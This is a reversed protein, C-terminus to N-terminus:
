TRSQDGESMGVTDRLSELDGLMGWVEEVLQDQDDNHDGEMDAAEPIRSHVEELPRTEGFQKDQGGQQCAAGGMVAEQQGEESRKRKQVETGTRAPIEDWVDRRPEEWVTLGQDEWRGVAVQAGEGTTGGNGRAVEEELRAVTMMLARVERAANNRREAEEGASVRIEEELQRVIATLDAVDKAAKSKMSVEEAALV